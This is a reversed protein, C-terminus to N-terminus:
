ANPWYVLYGAVLCALVVGLLVLSGIAITRDM